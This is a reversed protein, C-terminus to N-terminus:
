CTGLHVLANYMQMTYALLLVVQTPLLQKNKAFIAHLTCSQLQALVADDKINTNFDTLVFDQLVLEM